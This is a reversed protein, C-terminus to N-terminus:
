IPRWPPFRAMAIDIVLDLIQDGAFAIRGYERIVRRRAKRLRRAPVASGSRAAHVAVGAEEGAEPVGGFAAGVLAEAGGAVVAGFLAAFTTKRLAM